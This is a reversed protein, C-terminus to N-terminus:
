PQPVSPLSAAAGESSGVSGDPEMPAVKASHMFSKKAINGSRQPKAGQLSEATVIRRTTLKTLQMKARVAGRLKHWDKLPKDEERFLVRSMLRKQERLHENISAKLDLPFPSWVHYAVFVLFFQMHNILLFVMSRKAIQDWGMVGAFKADPPQECLELTNNIKQDNWCDLNPAMIKTFPEVADVTDWSENTVTACQSKPGYQWSTTYSAAM